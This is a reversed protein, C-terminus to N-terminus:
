GPISTPQWCQSSTSPAPIFWRCRRHRGQTHRRGSHMIAYRIGAARAGAHRRVLGGRDLVAGDVGLVPLVHDPRRCFLRRHRRGCLRLPQWTRVVRRAFLMCVAASLWSPSSRPSCGAYRAAKSRSSRITSSLSPRSSATRFRGSRGCRSLPTVLVFLSRWHGRTLGILVAGALMILAPPLFDFM